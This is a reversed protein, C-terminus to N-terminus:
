HVQGPMGSIIMVNNSFVLILRTFNVYVIINIKSNYPLIPVFKLWREFFKRKVVFEAFMKPQLIQAANM